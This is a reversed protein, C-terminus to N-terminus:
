TFFFHLDVAFSSKSFKMISLLYCVKYLSNWFQVICFFGALINWLSQSLHQKEISQNINQCVQLDQLIFPIRWYQMMAPSGLYWVDWLHFNELIELYGAGSNVNLTTFNYEVKNDSIYM